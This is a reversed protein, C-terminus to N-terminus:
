NMKVLNVQKIANISPQKAITRSRNRKSNNKYLKSYPMLPKRSPKRLLLKLLLHRQVLLM